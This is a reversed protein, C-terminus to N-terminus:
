LQTSPSEEVSICFQRAPLDFSVQYRDFFGFGGLLGGKIDDLTSTFVVDVEWKGTVELELTV